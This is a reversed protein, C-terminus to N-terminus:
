IAKQAKIEQIWSFYKKSKEPAQKQYANGLDELIPILTQAKNTWITESINLAEELLQTGKEFDGLALYSKGLGRYCLYYINHNKNKIILESKQLSENFYEIAKKPNKTGLYYTGYDNLIFLANLCVHDSFCEDFQKTAFDLYFRAKKYNKQLNYERAIQELVLLPALIKLKGLKNIKLVELHIELAKDVNGLERYICGLNGLIYCLQLNPKSHTISKNMALADLTYQLAEKNNGSNLYIAGLWKLSECIQRNEKSGYYAKLIELSKKCYEFARANECKWQYLMTLSTYCHALCPSPANQYIAQALTTAQMYLEEARDYNGLCFYCYGLDTLTFIANPNYKNSYIKEQLILSKQYLTISQRWEGKLSKCNGLVNLLKIGKESELIQDKSNELIWSANIEWHSLDDNSLDIEELQDYYEINKVQEILFELTKQTFSLSDKSEQVLQQKLRHLSFTENKKDCSIYGLNTLTRLIQDAKLQVTEKPYGQQKAWIDVWRMPIKDPYLLSCIQLWEYAHPYNAHLDELNKHCMAIWNQPYRTLSSQHQLVAIKNEELFTNYNELSLHPSEKIYHLVQDLAVPFFGLNKSVKDWSQISENKGIVKYYLEKAMPQSFLPVPIALDSTWLDKNRTTILIRGNGKKPLEISSDANDYILLWPKKFLHNELASDIKQKMKEFSLAPVTPINLYEALSCYNKQYSEKSGLDIWYILSFDNQHNNAFTIATESKGIGGEGHLVVTSLGQHPKVLAKNLTHLIEDRGVFNSYKSPISVFNKEDKQSFYFIAALFLLIAAAITVEWQIRKQYSLARLTRAKEIEGMEQLIDALYCASKSFTGSALYIEMSELLLPRKEDRYSKLVKFAKLLFSDMEKQLGFCKITQILSEAAQLAYDSSQMQSAWYHIAMKPHLPINESEALACLCEHPIWGSDTPLILGMTELSTIMEDSLDYAACFKEKEFYKGCAILASLSRRFDAQHIHNFIEIPLDLLSFKDLDKREPFLNLRSTGINYMEPLPLDQIKLEYCIKELLATPTNDQEKIEYLAKILASTFYGSPKQKDEYSKDIGSSLLCFFTKSSTKIAPNVFSNIRLHCADMFLYFEDANLSCIDSLLLDLSLAWQNCLLYSKPDPLPSRYGHGCYYFIIKFPEQIEKLKKFCSSLTEQLNNTDLFIHINEKEIGSNCLFQTFLLADARAGPLNEWNSDEYKSIGIVIAIIM